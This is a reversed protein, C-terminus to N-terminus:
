GKNESGNLHAAAILPKVIFYPHTIDHDSGFCVGLLAAPEPVQHESKVILIQRGGM